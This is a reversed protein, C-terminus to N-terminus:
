ALEKTEHIYMGGTQNESERTHGLKMIVKNPLRLQLNM